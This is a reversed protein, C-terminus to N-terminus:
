EFLFGVPLSLELYRIFVFHLMLGCALGIFLASLPRGKRLYWILGFIFLTTAPLTGIVELLGVYAALAVMTVINRLMGSCSPWGVPMVPGRYRWAEYVLGLGGLLVGGGTLLPLTRPPLRDEMGMGGTIQGAAVLVVAGLLVLVSGSALDVSRQTRM